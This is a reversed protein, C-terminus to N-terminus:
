GDIAWNVPILPVKNLDLLKEMIDSDFHFRGKHVGDLIASGSHTAIAGWLKFSRSTSAFFNGGSYVIGRLDVDPLDKDGWSDYIDAAVQYLSTRGSKEAEEFLSETMNLAIARVRDNYQGSPWITLWNGDGGPQQDCSRLFEKIRIHRGLTVAGGPNVVSGGEKSCQDLFTALAAQEGSSLPRGLPTTGSAYGTLNPLIDRVYDGHLIGQDRIVPSSGLGAAFLQDDGGVKLRQRADVTYGPYPQHWETLSQPQGISLTGSVLNSALAQKMFLFDNKDFIDSRAVLAPSPPRMRISQDAYLAVGSDPSQALQTKGQIEIVGSGKAILAGNGAVNGKITVDGNVKWSSLPDTARTMSAQESYGLSLQPTLWNRTSDLVVSGASELQGRPVFHFDNLVVAESGPPGSSAGNDYIAGTYSRDPPDVAPNAAPNSFYALQGPGTFVYKGGPLNKVGGPGKKLADGDLM